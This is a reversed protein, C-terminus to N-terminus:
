STNANREQQWQRSLATLLCMSSSKQRCISCTTFPMSYSQLNYHCAEEHLGAVSRSLQLLADSKISTDLASQAATKDKARCVLFLQDPIQYKISYMCQKKLTALTMGSTTTAGPLRTTNTYVVGPSWPSAYM